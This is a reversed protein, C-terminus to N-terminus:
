ICLYSSQGWLAYVTAARVRCQGAIYLDCDSCNLLVLRGVFNLNCNGCCMWQSFRYFTRAKSHDALEPTWLDSCLCCVCMVILSWDCWKKWLRCTIQQQAETVRSMCVRCLLSRRWRRTEWHCVWTFRFRCNALFTLFVAFFCFLSLTSIFNSNFM